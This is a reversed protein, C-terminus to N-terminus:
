FCNKFIKCKVENLDRITDHHEQNNEDLKKIKENFYEYKLIQGNRQKFKDTVTSVEREKLLEQFFEKNGDEENLIDM